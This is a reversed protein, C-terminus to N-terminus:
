SDEGSDFLADFESLLEVLHDAEPDGDFERIAPVAVMSDSPFEEQDEIIQKVRPVFVFQLWQSYAMTDMAFAEQFDYAEPALPEAAWYGIIKMEAEIEAIAKAVQSRLNSSDDPETM